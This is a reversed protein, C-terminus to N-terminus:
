PKQFYLTTADFVFPQGNQSGGILNTTCICYGPRDILGGPGWSNLCLIGENTLAVAILAHDGVFSHTSNPLRMIASRNSWNTIFNSFLKIGFVVPRGLMLNAIIAQVLAQGTQRLSQIQYIGCIGVMEAANVRGAARLNEPPNPNLHAQDYPWPAEFCPFNINISGGQPQASILPGAITMGSDSNLPLGMSPYVANRSLRYMFFRSLKKNIIGRMAVTTERQQFTSSGLIAAVILNASCNPSCTNFTGQQLVRGVFFRTLDTGPVISYSAGVLPAAVLKGNKRGGVLGLKQAALNTESRIGLNEIHQRLRRTMRFQNWPRQNPLCKIAGTGEGIQAPTPGSM